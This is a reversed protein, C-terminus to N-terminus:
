EVRELEIKYTEKLYLRITDIFAKSIDQIENLNKRGIERTKKDLMAPDKEQSIERMHDLVKWNIKLFNDYTKQDLFLVNKDVIQVISNLWIRLSEYSDYAHPYEGEESKEFRTRVTYVEWSIEIIRSYIELRKQFFTNRRQTKSQHKVLLLNGLLSLVAGIIVGIFAIYAPNLISDTQTGVNLIMLTDNLSDFLFISNQTM